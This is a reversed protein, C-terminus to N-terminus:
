YVPPTWGSQQTYTGGMGFSASPKPQMGGGPVLAGGQQAYLSQLAMDRAPNYQGPLAPPGTALPKQSELAGIQNIINQPQNLDFLRRQNLAAQSNYYNEQAPSIPPSQQYGGLVRNLLDMLVSSQSNTGFNQIAAQVAPPISGSGPNAAVSGTGVVGTPTTGLVTRSGLRPDHLVQSALVSQTANYEPHAPNIAAHLADQSSVHDIAAHAADHVRMNPAIIEATWGSAM